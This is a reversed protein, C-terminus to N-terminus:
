RGAARVVTVPCPAYHVVQQSVSGLLAGKFGGYGRSGVVILDDAGAQDLLARVPTGEVVHAEVRDAGDEGLEEVLTERLRQAVAQSLEEIETPANTAVILPSFEWAWVAVLPAGWREAESAAWRLAARSGDSGDVGVIVRNM